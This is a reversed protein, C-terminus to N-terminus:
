RVYLRIARREDEDYRLNVALSAPLYEMAIFHRGDVEGVEYIWCVSPHDISAVIRAERRFREVYQPDRAMEPHLVKLAVTRDVDPDIARYVTGQAGSAIEEVVRYRGIQEQAM